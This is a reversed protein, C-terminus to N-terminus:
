EKTKYFRNNYNWAEGSEIKGESELNKLSKEVRNKIYHLVDNRSIHSPVLGKDKKAQELTSIIDLTFAKMDEDSNITAM